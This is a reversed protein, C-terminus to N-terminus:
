ASLIGRALGIFRNMRVLDEDYSDHVKVIAQACLSVRRRRAVRAVKGLLERHQEDTGALVVTNRAQCAFGVRPDVIRDLEEVDNWGSVELTGIGPFASLLDEVLGQLPGCTHFGTVTGENEQIARYAPVVLDRFVAPSVFPPNVWDDAVFSEGRQWTEGLFAARERNWRAREVVVRALGARLFEPREGLDFAFHEYTRMQVLIDLPGRQFRPFGLTVKGGYREESLRRIERHQRLLVPMDGSTHFEWRPLIGLDPREALPHPLFEPVGETSTRIRQGFLTTDWYYGTTPVIELGAQDDGDSNDLWFIRQRLEM